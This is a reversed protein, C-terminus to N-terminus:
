ARKMAKAFSLKVLEEPEVDSSLVCTVEGEQWFALTVDGVHHVFFDFDGHRRVDAGPAAARARGAYMQCVLVRGSADRYVYLASPAGGFRHVRGGALRWGMMGLDLVRVPFGLARAFHAELAHSDSTELTLPLGGRKVAVFDRAGLEPLREARGRWVTVGIAALVAAALALVPRLWARARRSSRRDEGDLARTVALTLGAPAPEEAAAAHRVAGRVLSLAELRARCEACSRLHAEAAARAEGTLRADLLEHLEDGLHRAGATM